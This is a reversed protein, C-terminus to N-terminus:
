KWPRLFTLKIPYASPLGWSFHSGVDKEISLYLRFALDTEDTKWINLMRQRFSNM